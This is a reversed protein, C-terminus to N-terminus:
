SLIGARDSSFPLERERAAQGALRRGISLAANILGVHTFAQPFNGLAAGTAPDIEEGYLGLDNGYGCLREFLETAEELRGGGLALFEAGWFGCIGFAGEGESEPGRYRLLLGDGVGLQERIRAYTERMRESGAADFGHWALLLTSADLEDGDLQATYARLRSNWGRQEVQARLLERNYVFRARPMRRVYGMDHLQILNDLASWCLVKSHTNQRRGSRQEWIGEDPQEWHQCVYEGFAALMGETERDLRGGHRVLQMVADIVEGYVDLQVQGSAANGVRVPRSGEHGALHPLEREAGPERGFLDYLIRLAPQTLRTSHLLWSVFAEAEDSFGLGFLARATFAADRLWCFRYDWNLGGGMREPLSTTPAAIIAGTPAFVLLKLVLASREVHERSPGQYSLRSVWRRWWAISRDLVEFSRAGLPPVVALSDDAYTLSLHLSDGARLSTQCRVRGDSELRVPASSRLVMVGQGTELRVGLPGMDRMRPRARAFDPRLEVISELEIEGEVDTVVRLIEHDPFLERRKDAEAGVPMLDILKAAGSSTVFRTELVNTGPVYSRSSEFTATPRLSWRGAREDLIASFLAPSDFRPWCLWDISGRRSVLAASRCDGILAYDGVPEM